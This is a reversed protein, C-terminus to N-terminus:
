GNDDGLASLPAPVDKIREWTNNGNLAWMTGDDCLAYLIGDRDATYAVHSAPLAQIQIVRRPVTM